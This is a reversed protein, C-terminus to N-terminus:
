CEKGVRREESRFGVLVMFAFTGILAVFISVSPIITSRIDQLFVYVVLIVLLIAEVLTKIVEHISAYLFDNSSMIQVIEVDKPLDKRAEDLFKNIDENVQTANSGATQFIMCSTGNHGDMGGIFGYTNKGLEIEAM